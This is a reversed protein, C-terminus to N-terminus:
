SRAPKTPAAIMTPRRNRSEAASAEIRQVPPKRRRIGRARQQDQYRQPELPIERGDHDLHEPRQDAKQPRGTTRRVAAAVEDSVREHRRSAAPSYGLSMAWRAAPSSRPRATSTCSPRRSRRARRAMERCRPRDPQDDGRRLPARDLRAAPRLDRAGAARVPQHRLRRDDLPRFQAAAAGARQRCIAGAKTVFM